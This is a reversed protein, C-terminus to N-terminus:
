FVRRKGRFVERVNTERDINEKVPKWIVQGVKYGDIIVDGAEIQIVQRMMQKRTVIGGGGGSVNATPRGGSSYVMRLGIAQEPTATIVKMNQAMANLANYVSNANKEIGERIGEPIWKGIEDRMVRSPSRIELASRMTRTIENAIRRATAIARSGGSNLGANLGNMANIGITRFRSNLGSFPSQLDKSLKKMANVQSTAGSRLRNLMNKMAKNVIQPLKLFTKEIERIARDFDRTILRFSSTSSSHVSKFMQQIAQIVKKSGQSLGLALGDALDGGIQRFVRSPSRVGFADKATKTTDDAMKKAARQAKPTGKEVGEATGEPVAIGISEFNASKIQQRLAQETDTVLHELAAMIGSEEIGLSKSFAETAVKGHNSFVENLKELEEDSANVLAKVHGASEPGAERLKDLLGQDVGREALIVINEAWESIIRQNEELNKTMDAVTLEAEDSLTNFMDSAANKYEEWTSKMNDVTQQQAESLDEYAITQLAVGRKTAETIIEMSTTIQEETKAQQSELKELTDRLEQEKENLESVADEYERSKVAGEELKQNWRERLENTEKLKEEVESQERLIETLREQAQQATEQERMLNIREKIQESSLSLADAEADYTLNLGHVSGNLQEVYSALLRKEAASKNEKQSLKDIRDALERNAKATAKIESQSEKYADASNKVEDSLSSVSDGLEETEKNLKKAEATTRRFWKVVATIGAVLLGIGSIVWGIPGTLFRWAAGLAYAAATAVVKAATSLKITGTMVGIALTSLKVARAQAATAITQANTAATSATTAMMQAQIALTLGNTSAMATKLVANSAQIAASAKTIVTYAAYASVLGIIAPSLANVVPIVTKVASAFRSVIPASAEIIRGITRFSSSIIVKLRDINQAIDRGTVEQSLRDFSAIIDALGRVAATRLNELSTAIGLSNERALKALVGTGTGLEILKNNFEDLTITGDQLANYLQDKASRGAYGFSEAVKVLAVDMTESLTRWTMIDVKGTQLAKLYQETGRRAKEANAGSGLLANNLALASDTAKDMDGFSTYMRQATSAIDDLKTPLGDIGDSLRQMARESDEASVGLAQLVKPFNNLTDFRSIADDMANRLTKFAAAGIAVLGLATALKRVSSGARSSERGVGKMGQETSKVGEGSKYGASELRDLEKSAVNVEKGDVDIKISIRGDAM